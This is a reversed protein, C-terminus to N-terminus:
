TQCSGTMAFLDNYHSIACVDRKRVTFCAEAGPALTELPGIPELEVLRDRYYFVCCTLGQRACMDVLKLVSTM